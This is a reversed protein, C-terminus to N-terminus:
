YKSIRTVLEEVAKLAEQFRENGNGRIISYNYGLLDLEKKYMVFLRERMEGGNERVPDAVWPIDTNCLLFLDITKRKLEDDIWDPHHNFVVDFWVKTIILYTDLFLLNNAHRSYDNAQRIQTEAIHVIDQFHYPRDLSAVYERAFEPVCITNYHKALQLSLTTKGTCEPGTIAVRIVPSGSADTSKEM